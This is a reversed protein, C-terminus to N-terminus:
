VVGLPVVERPEDSTIHSGAADDGGDIAVVRFRILSANLRAVLIRVSTVLYPPGISAAERSVV